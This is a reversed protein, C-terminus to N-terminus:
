FAMRPGIANNFAPNAYLVTNKTGRPSALATVACGGGNIHKLAAALLTEDPHGLPQIYQDYVECGLPSGQAQEANNPAIGDEFKSFGKDNEYRFNITFYEYGCNSLPIMGFPKGCTTTGIQVVPIDVGRLGNILAESASCTSDSTLVYLKKINLTPLPQGKTIDSSTGTTARYFPITTDAFGSSSTGVNPGFRLTSFVRNEGIADGGIIYALESAVDLYGGGNFRLDVILDQAGGQAKIQNAANILEKEATGNFSSFSFYAIKQGNEATFYNINQVSNISLEVATLQREPSIVGQSNKFVFRHTPASASPFLGDVLKDHGSQAETLGDVSVLRDGRSIGALAAASNREVYAVVIDTNSERLWTIGYSLPTGLVFDQYNDESTEYFHFRDGATKLLDFYNQPNLGTTPDQDALDNAWLYTEHSFSRLAFKEYTASGPQDYFPKGTAPDIGSRPSACRDLYQTFSAYKGQQWNLGSNGVPTSTSSSKGCSILGGSCGLVIALAAASLIPRHRGALYDKAKHCVSGSEKIFLNPM